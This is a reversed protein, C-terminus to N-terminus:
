TKIKEVLNLVDQKLLFFDDTLGKALLVVHFSEPFKMKNLRYIERLLRKQRNRNVAKKIKKSVVFGIKRSDSKVFLVSSYKGPIWEGNKFINDFQLRGRLIENKRLKFNKPETIM